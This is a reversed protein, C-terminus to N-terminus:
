GRLVDRASTVTPRASGGMAALVERAAREGSEVAGNMFGQSETSTHEGAFHVPGAAEGEVGAITTWDGPGYCSYSGEFYRASSWHMRAARGTFANVTGPYVTDLAEAFRRGQAEPNSNGLNMGLTGGSFATMIATHGEYGRTTEWSEHYVGGDNFSTGSSGAANWPRDQTSIMVKTNTGYPLERISRRKASSMEFGLECRRLQTFPLALIVRDATVELTSSAVEFVATVAGDERARVAVLQHGLSVAGGLRAALTRAVADSGERITFREDSQGYLAFADADKCITYLFTIAAVEGVDRGLESTFAVELLTRISGSVGNRDFWGGLSLGDLAEVAPNHHQWNVVRATTLIAHDRRVVESVPRFMDVVAQESLHQNNLVYREREYQSAAGRADVLNLGLERVLGQLATHSTDVLEGGLECKVPFYDRQTFARGGVRGNADYVKPRLGAQTLRWAATLGALGAGVVVVRPATASPRPASIVRRTEPSCAALAGTLGVGLAERRTLARRALSEEKRETWERTPIHHAELHSATRLAELLRAVLPSRPM